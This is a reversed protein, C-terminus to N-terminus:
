AIMFVVIDRASVENAVGPKHRVSGERRFKIEVRIDQATIDTM